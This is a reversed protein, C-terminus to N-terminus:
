RCPLPHRNCRNKPKQGLNYRPVPLRIILVGPEAKSVIQFGYPPTSRPSSGGGVTPFHHTKAEKAYPRICFISVIAYPGTRRRRWHFRLFPWLQCSFGIRRSETTHLETPNSSTFRSAGGYREHAFPRRGLSRRERRGGKPPRRSRLFLRPRGQPQRVCRQGRFLQCGM